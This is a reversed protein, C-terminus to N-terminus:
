GIRAKQARPGASSAGQSGVSDSLVAASVPARCQLLGLRPPAAWATDGTPAGHGARSACARPTALACRSGESELSKLRLSLRSLEKRLTSITEAAAADGSRAEQALRAGGGESAPPSFGM